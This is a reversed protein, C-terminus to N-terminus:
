EEGYRVRTYLEGTRVMSLQPSNVFEVKRTQKKKERRPNSKRSREKEEEHKFGRLPIILEGTGKGLKLGRM